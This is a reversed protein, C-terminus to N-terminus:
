ATLSDKYKAELAVLKPGRAYRLFLVLILIDTAAATAYGIVAGTETSGLGFGGKGQPAIMFFAISIFTIFIAPLTMLWHSKQKGAFYAACTWLTVAALTQNCIGSYIWITNFDLGSIIFALAFIPIALIIRRSIKKQNFKFADAIVLRMSRFATDGSTIPCIIVGIIAIAAGAKGLWTECIAHVIRAPVMGGAAAVNLGEPGNFFAMAATAWISAVIGEAIMAGYFIKRGYKENSICRAMLPSQTGHFGSLAGCSITIFLMPLLYAPTPQKFNHFNAPTLEILRVHVSPDSSFGHYFLAGMVMLAMLLLIGGLFPYIKGIIKGIPLLTAMIYYTFVVTLWIKTSFGTLSSLLDVPGNVFSSGINLLLFCNFVIMVIGIKKGLYRKALGPLVSGNNRVSVMGSVFDHAAGMFICGIVIWLYAIPGYAAGLIAGFIPGLGAINLFQIIFVRWPSLVEYDVGDANAVAPTPRAPKLGFFKELFKGYTFYGIVLLVISIIFTIM